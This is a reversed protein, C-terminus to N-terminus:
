EKKTMSTVKGNKYEPVVPYLDYQLCYAIDKEFGIKRLYAAHSSLSVIALLDRECSRLMHSVALATDSLICRESLRAAILGACLADEFSFRGETGACLLTVNKKEQLLEQCVAQCNLFSALLVRPAEEIQSLALTGNTTTMILEQGALSQYETPSNGINFGDIKIGEREGALLAHPNNAKLEWANQVTQVPYIAKCGHAFATIMSSTARFADIAVLIDQGQQNKDFSNPTLCVDLYM